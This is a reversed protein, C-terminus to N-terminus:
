LVLLRNLLPWGETKPTSEPLKRIIAGLADSNYRSSTNM